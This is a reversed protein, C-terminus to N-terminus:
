RCARSEFLCLAYIHMHMIDSYLTSLLTSRVGQGFSLKVYPLLCTITPPAGLYSLRYLVASFISTDATRNRGKASMLMFSVGWAAQLAVQPTKREGERKPNVAFSNKRVFRKM